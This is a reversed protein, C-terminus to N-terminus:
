LKTKSLCNRGILSLCAGAETFKKCVDKKENYYYCNECPSMDNAAKVIRCFEKQKDGSMLMLLNRMNSM